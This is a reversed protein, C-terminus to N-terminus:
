VNSSKIIDKHIFAINNSPNIKPLATNFYTFLYIFLCVFKSIWISDAIKEPNDCWQYISIKIFMDYCCLFNGNSFAPHFM